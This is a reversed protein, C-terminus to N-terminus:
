QNEAPRRTTGQMVNTTLDSRLRPEMPLICQKLSATTHVPLEESQVPEASQCNAM